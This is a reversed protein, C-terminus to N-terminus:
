ADIFNISRTKVFLAASLFSRYYKRSLSDFHIKDGRTLPM